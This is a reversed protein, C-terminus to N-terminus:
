NIIYLHGLTKRSEAGKLVCLCFFWDGEQFLNHPWHSDSYIQLMKELDRTAIPLVERPSSRPGKLEVLCTNFATNLSLVADAAKLHSDSSKM